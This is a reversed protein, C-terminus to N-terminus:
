IAHRVYSVRGARALGCIDALAEAPTVLLVYAGSSCIDVPVALPPADVAGTDLRVRITEQQHWRRNLRAKVSEWEETAVAGSRVDHARQELEAVWADAADADAGDDLSLLLEHALRARERVPLALANTLLDAAEPAM